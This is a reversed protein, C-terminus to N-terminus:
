NKIAGKNTDASQEPRGIQAGGRETDSKQSYRQRLFTELKSQESDNRPMKIPFVIVNQKQYNTFGCFGHMLM